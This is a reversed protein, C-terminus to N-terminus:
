NNFETKVLRKIQKNCYYHALILIILETMVASIAVGYIGYFEAFFLVLIVHFVGAFVLIKMRTKYAKIAPFFLTVYLMNLASLLAIVGLIQFIRFYSVILQDRYFFYLISDSELIIIISIVLGSTLIVPRIKKIFIKIKEFSKSSLYPFIAQYLPIYISKTAVVLKEMSAYVGAISDGAFFGLILTNSSTYLNVAFNSALLYLSERSIQIVENCRPMVLNVYKLSYVFGLFGSFVFGLGNLIPVFEFDEPNLVFFFISITFFLKAILNIIMIMKMKEIGQFFWTPFIAQGIVLGFSYLYVLPYPKFKDLFLVLCLLLMFTAFILIFKISYVNWFFQSLKKKDDKILAVQRTASINFGFDVIVTFFIAISQAIMVLGYKEVGLTIVLYPLAILPLIFNSGQILLLSIYNSFVNNNNRNKWFSLLNM